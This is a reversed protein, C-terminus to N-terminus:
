TAQPLLVQREIADGKQVVGYADIANGLPWTKVLAPRLAGSEFGPRLQDMIRAIEEGTLKATDVGILHHRSHYFDVLDFEVRRTGASSIVVYRGGVALAKLSLEFLAGGVTDFVVDVGSDATHAKVLSPWDAQTTNIVIDAETPKDSRSAGIVIAKKWHAIQIAARGVAGTAGTILVTQGAQIDAELVLASWATMYSVGVTAASQMSLNAPKKSLWTKPVAVYEAHSGDRTVGFGAGNGWVEEGPQFDGDVTVGAFDRGPVRPLTPNFVGSVFKVDSPNIGSAHVQVLVEGAKLDPIPLDKVVLVSPPGYADFQLAKMTKM